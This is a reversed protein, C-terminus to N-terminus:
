KGKMGFLVAAAAAAMVIPPINFSPKPTVTPVPKDNAASQEQREQIAPAIANVADQQGAVSAPTVSVATAPSPTPLDGAGGGAAVQQVARKNLMKRKLIAAAGGGAALIAAAKITNKTALRHVNKIGAKRAADIVRMVSKANKNKAIKKRIGDKIAKNAAKALVRKKAQSKIVSSAAHRIGSRGALKAVASAAGPAAAIVAAGAAIKLATKLKLKRLAKPVLKSKKKKQVSTAQRSAIAVSKAVAKALHKKKAQRKVVNVMAQRPGVPVSGAATAPLAAAKFMASKLKVSGKNKRRAGALGSIRVNTVIM